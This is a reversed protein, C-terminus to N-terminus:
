RKSDHSPPTPPPPPPSPPPTGDLRFGDAVRRVEFITGSTYSAYVFRTEDIALVRYADYLSPESTDARIQRGGERFGRVSTFYIPYRIGWIGTESETEVDGSATRTEFDSAYSGDVARVIVWRTRGGDKNDREGYWTGIMKGRAAETVAPPHWEVQTGDTDPAPTAATSSASNADLDTTCALSATLVLTATAAARAM